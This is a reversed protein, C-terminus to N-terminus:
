PQHSPKIIEKILNIVTNDATVTASNYNFYFIIFFKCSRMIKIVIIIIIQALFNDLNLELQEKM